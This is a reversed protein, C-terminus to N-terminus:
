LVGVPRGSVRASTDIDVRNWKRPIGPLTNKELEVLLLFDCFNRIPPHHSEFGRGLFGHDQRRRWKNLALVYQYTQGSVQLLNVLQRGFWNLDIAGTYARCLWSSSVRM